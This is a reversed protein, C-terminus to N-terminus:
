SRILLLDHTSVDEGIPEMNPTTGSCEAFDPIGSEYPGDLKEDLTLQTIRVAVDPYMKFTEFMRGLDGPRTAEYGLTGGPRETLFATSASTM